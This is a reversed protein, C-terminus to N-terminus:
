IFITLLKSSNLYKLSIVSINKEQKIINRLDELNNIIISNVSHLILLKYKEANTEIYPANISCLYKALKTSNKTINDYEVKKLFVIKNIGNLNIPNEFHEKTFEIGNKIMNILYEESLENFSACFIKVNEKNDYINLTNYDSQIIPNVLSCYKIEDDHECKVIDYKYYKVLIDINYLSMLLLYFDITVFMNFKDFYIKGDNNFKNNNLEIIIDNENFKIPFTKTIYEINTSNIVMHGNIINDENAIQIQSTPIIYNPIKINKSTSFSEFFYFIVFFPICFIDNNQMYSVIGFPKNNQLVLSGITLMKLSIKSINNIKILPIKPIYTTNIHEFVIEFNNFEILEDNIYINIHENTYNSIKEKTLIGHNKIISSVDILVLDLEKIIKYITIQNYFNNEFKINKKAIYKYCTLFCIKDNIQLLTGCLYNSNSIDSLVPTFTRKLINIDHPIDNVNYKLNYSYRNLILEDVLNLNVQQRTPSFTLNVQQRTPSFTM